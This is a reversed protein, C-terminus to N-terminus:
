ALRLTGELYGITSEQYGTTSHYVVQMLRYDSSYSWYKNRQNSVRRQPPFGLLYAGYVVLTRTTVQTVEVRYSYRNYYLQPSDYVITFGEPHPPAYKNLTM